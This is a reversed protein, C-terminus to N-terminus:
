VWGVGHLVYELLFYYYFEDKKIVCIFYIGNCISLFSIFPRRPNYSFNNSFFISIRSYIEYERM